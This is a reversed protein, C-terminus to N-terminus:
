VLVSFNKADDIRLAKRTGELARVRKPTLPDDVLGGICEPIKCSEGERLRATARPM